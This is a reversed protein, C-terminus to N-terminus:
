EAKSNLLTLTLTGKLNGKLRENQKTKGECARVNLTSIGKPMCIKIICIGTIMILM